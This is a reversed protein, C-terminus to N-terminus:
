GRMRTGKPDYWPALQAQAPYRQWAVEVEFPEAALWAADIDESATVYGMGLSGKIRHGWAGSTISGVCKGARWIPEEHFLLPADDDKMRIQVLRRRLAGAERKRLLADRGIFGGPKEWAVAFGLGAAMPTDEVGIDHGWHRYGKEIRLSNLAFYGAHRLDFGVGAAVITDFVHQAFEAPITLEWGLEGVYSVRSARVRAYGIEIERSSGFPFAENSFDSDSIAQMLARSKPGMIALMPLASTVDRAFVHAEEPLHRRLWAFDRTQSTAGTVALFSTQSLRTVTLDAEIGGRDNLWQTYVLRGVPVDLDNASIRQLAALSDRGDVAFKAFCSYDFLSVADRTHRCEAGTVEFWSPRNWSYTVEPTTGPCGFFGPREWGAAETMFAGAAALRDHFPGRRVGRATAYQRYPWHMDFLLGLTETTRDYLYKRNSQFPMMRQVDVDALEVPSHGDRIWQSLAKGVGGSSLVGVSNFGCACYLNDIEATEGLLYRDDPTFSEPGCFFLQIGAKALLPVRNMALELIPEFHDFDEPLTGFAFDAPIGQHGWPKAKEEFCGLLLKGADEKYYSQEDAVFLVPLDRPLDPLPETVIYFHEAAHLPLSVGALGGIDRSWMGGCIVVKDARIEGQETIAGIAKGGEVLIRDVRLGEVITVGANRAGKAMAMTVDVPNVQGDREMWLGGVIGDTDIPPYRDKIEAPGIVEVPLGFNRAMSAGRKLELFREATRALRLSGNQRFGTAQGTEAELSKFLEGTYKALETMNRTARLQTVLGAAHWTTGCTLQKRECLLVDTIGLKALHYAVSVGAVGGGVILVEAKSRFSNGM